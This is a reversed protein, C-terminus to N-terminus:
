PKRRAVLYLTIAAAVGLVLLTGSIWLVPELDVTGGAPEDVPPAGSESSPSPDGTATTSPAPDATEVSEGCVPTSTSGSSLPQSADPQWNFTFEGSVTHGDASVVQWTMTYDGAEGLTAGMSLSPGSVELCGDGYYRGEVDRVEIAFAGDDGLELLDANTTVEFVPPLETVTSGEAPTSSVLYNHAETPPAAGLIPAAVIAAAAIAIALRKLQTRM